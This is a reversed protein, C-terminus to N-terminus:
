KVGILNENLCKLKQRALGDIVHRGILRLLSLGIGTIIVLRRFKVVPILEEFLRSLMKPGRQSRMICLYCNYLIYEASM